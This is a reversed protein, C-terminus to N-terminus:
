HGQITACWDLTGGKKHLVVQSPKQWVVTLVLSSVSLMCIQRGQERAKLGSPLWMANILMESFCGKACGCRLYVQDM